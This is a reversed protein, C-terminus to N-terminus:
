QQDRRPNLGTRTRSLGLRSSVRGRAGRRSIDANKKKGNDSSSAKTNFYSLMRKRIRVFTACGREFDAKQNQVRDPIEAQERVQEAERVRNQEGDRVLREEAEIERQDERGIMLAHRERLAASRYIEEAFLDEGAAVDFIMGANIEAGAIQGALDFVM